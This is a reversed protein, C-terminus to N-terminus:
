EMSATLLVRYKTDQCKGIQEWYKENWPHQLFNGVNQTRVSPLKSGIIKMGPMCYSIGLNLKLVCSKLAGCNAGFIKMGNLM